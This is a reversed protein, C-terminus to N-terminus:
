GLRQGFPRTHGAAHHAKRIIDYVKRADAITDFRPITDDGPWDALGSFRNGAASVGFSITGEGKSKETLAFDGLTRLELSQARHRLIGSHIIIRENTVVYQTRARRWAEIVFRGGVMYAGMLVFPISWLRLVLPTDSRMVSYELFLSFGGWLLSFPIMLVDAGRLMLGQRPVGHWLVSENTSLNDM